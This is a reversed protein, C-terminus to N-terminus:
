KASCEWFDESPTIICEVKKNGQMEREYFGADLILCRSPMILNKFSVKQDLTEPRANFM